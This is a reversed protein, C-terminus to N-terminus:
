ARDGPESGALLAAVVRAVASLARRAEPGAPAGNGWIELWGATRGGAVLALRAGEEPLPPSPRFTLASETSLLIDPRVGAEPVPGGPDGSRAVAQGGADRVVLALVPLTRRAADLIAALRSGLPGRRELQDVSAHLLELQRRTAEREARRSSFSAALLGCAALGVFAIVDQADEITLRLYPQTLFFDLSLASVLATAVAASRGGVEAVAITLALFAFTFNSAPTLSRLPVLAMGLFIAALPGVGLYILEEGDRKM